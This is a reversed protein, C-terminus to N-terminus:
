KKLRFIGESVTKSTVADIALHQKEVRPFLGVAGLKLAIRKAEDPNGSILFADVVESGDQRKYCKFGQNVCSGLIEQLTDKIEQGDAIKDLPLPEKPGYGNRELSDEIEKISPQYLAGTQDSVLLRNFGIQSFYIDAVALASYEKVGDKYFHVFIIRKRYGYNLVRGDIAFLKRSIGELERNFWYSDGGYQYGVWDGQKISRITQFLKIPLLNHTHAIAKLNATMITQPSFGPSFEYKELEEPEILDCFFRTINGLSKADICSTNKLFFKDEASTAAVAGQHPSVAAFAGHGRQEQDCLEGAYFTLFVNAPIPKSGIYVVVYGMQDDVKYLALNERYPNVLAEKISLKLQYPMTQMLIRGYKAMFGKPCMFGEYWQFHCQQELEAIPVEKYKHPFETIIKVTAPKFNQTLVLLEQSNM